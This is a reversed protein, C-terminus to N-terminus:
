LYAVSLVLIHFTMVYAAQQWIMRPMRRWIIAGYAATVVMVGFLVMGVSRGAPSVGSAVVLLGAVPVYAAAMAFALRIHIKGARAGNAPVIGAAVQLMVAFALFVLFWESLQLQPVLWYAAWWYLLLGGGVLGAVFLLYAVRHAAVHESITKRAANPWRYLVYGVCIWTLLVSIIGLQAIM